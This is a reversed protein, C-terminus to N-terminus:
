APVVDYAITSPDCHGAMVERDEDLIRAAEEADDRTAFERGHHEALFGATNADVTNGNHDSATCTIKFKSM